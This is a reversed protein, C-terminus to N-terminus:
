NAYHYCLKDIDMVDNVTYQTGPIPTELRLVTADKLLGSVYFKRKKGDWQPLDHPLEDLEDKIPEVSFIIEQWRAWQRDLLGLHLWYLPDNIGAATSWDGGIGTTVQKSPVYYLFQRLMDFTFSMANIEDLRAPSIWTHINGKNEFNRALCTRDPYRKQFAAFAGDGVCSHLGAGNGGFYERAWVPSKAPAAADETWNWYPLTVTPNVTQLAIELARLMFRQYPFQIAYGQTEPLLQIHNKVLLDYISDQEVGAVVPRKMVQQMAAVYNQWETPTLTRVEKRPLIGQACTPSLQLDSSYATAQPTAPLPNKPKFLTCGEIFILVVLLWSSFPM